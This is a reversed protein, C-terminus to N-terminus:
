ESAEQATPSAVDPQRQQNLQEANGRRNGDPGIEGFNDNGSSVSGHSVCHVTVDFDQNRQHHLSARGYAGLGSGIEGLVKAAWPNPQRKSRQRYESGDQDRLFQQTTSTM